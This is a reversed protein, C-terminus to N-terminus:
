NPSIDCNISYKDLFDGIEERRAPVKFGMFYEGMTKIWKAKARSRIVYLVLHSNHTGTIGSSSLVWWCGSVPFGLYLFLAVCISSISFMSYGSLSILYVTGGLVIYNRVCFNVRHLCSAFSFM